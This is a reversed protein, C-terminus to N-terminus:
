RAPGLLRPKAGSPGSGVGRHLVINRGAIRGEAYAASHGHSKYSTHRIRPHRERLYRGLEPDGLWVLGQQSQKRKEGSLKDRFGSMVGSVYSNHGSDNDPRTRAKYAKWLGLATHNLFTHVYEALEVNELSGCVELVTGRRGELPRWVPVWIVSVFFYEGLLAALIRQGEQIRGSPKGLHRYTYTQRAGSQVVEVNYKLMLRQAASMAAQAEHENPSEALALLKAIRDLLRAHEDSTEPANPLGAARADFGREECVKRFAPGHSTEDHVGLVEDVYQHAVEHKLVEVLTGWGHELLLARSLEIVRGSSVWRGLRSRDDVLDFSPRDLRFHFFTGNVDDYSRQIAGLALRELEVTLRAARTM